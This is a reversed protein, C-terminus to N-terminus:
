PVEQALLGTLVPSDGELGTEPDEGCMWPWWRSRATLLEDHYLATQTSNQVGIKALVESVVHKGRDL